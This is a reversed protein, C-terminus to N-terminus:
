NPPFQCDHARSTDNEVETKRKQAMKCVMRYTPDRDKEFALLMTFTREDASFFGFIRYHVGILEIRIEGLGKCESQGRRGLMAFRRRRWRARPIAQLAELIATMAGRVDGPCGTYWELIADGGDAFLYCRLTVM